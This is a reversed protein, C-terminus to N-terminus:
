PRGSPHRRTGARSSDLVPPPLEVGEAFAIDDPDEQLAASWDQWSQESM